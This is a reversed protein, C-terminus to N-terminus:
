VGDRIFAAIPSPWAIAVGAGCLRVHADFAYLVDRIGAPDDTALAAVSASVSRLHEGMARVAAADPAAPLTALQADLLAVTRGIDADEREWREVDLTGRRYLALLRDRETEAQRLARALRRREANAEAHVVGYAQTAEDLVDRWDVPDSLDAVFRAVTLREAKTPSIRRPRHTCPPFRHQFPHLAACRFQAYGTTPTVLYMPAGCGCRLVGELWSSGAKPRHATRTALWAQLREWRARDIIPPHADETVVDGTRVTGVLAPSALILRVARPEWTRGDNGRTERLWRAIRWLSWGAEAHAVMQRVVPADDPDPHLRGDAKKRYGFPVRGHPQGRRARERFSSSLFKGMRKREAESVVGLIGRVLDDEAHPETVSAFRLGPVSSKLQRWVGEQLWNDRAFRSVAYVAVVDPREAAARRLLTAIGPRHPDWGKEDPDIVPPEIVLGGQRAALERLAREQFALSLSDDQDDTVSQRVYLLWREPGSM